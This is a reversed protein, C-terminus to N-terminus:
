HILPFFQLIFIPIPSLSLSGVLTLSMYKMTTKKPPSIVWDLLRHYLYDSHHYLINLIYISECILKTINEISVLVHVSSTTCHSDPHFYSLSITPIYDVLTNRYYRNSRLWWRYSLFIKPSRVLGQSLSIKLWDVMSWCIIYSPIIINTYVSPQHNYYVM